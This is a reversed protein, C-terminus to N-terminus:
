KNQYLKELNLWTDRNFYSICNIKDSKSNLMNQNINFITLKYIGNISTIMKNIFDWIDKVM